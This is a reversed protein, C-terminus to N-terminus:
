FSFLLINRLIELDVQDSVKQPRYGELPRQRSFRTLALLLGLCGDSRSSFVKRPKKERGLHNRHKKEERGFVSFVCFFCM